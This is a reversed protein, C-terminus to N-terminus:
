DVKVVSITQRLSGEINVLELYYAGTALNSFDLEQTSEGIIHLKQIPVSTLKGSADFVSVSLEMPNPANLQLMVLGKTPNPYANVSLGTNVDEIAVLSTNPQQFGQTLIVNASTGTGAVAEGITSSVQVYATSGYGGASSVVQREATQALLAFPLLIFLNSIIKKM